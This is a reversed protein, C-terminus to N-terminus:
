PPSSINSFKSPAPQFTAIQAMKDYFGRLTIDSRALIKELREAEAGDAHRYDREDQQIKQKLEAIEGQLWQEMRRDRQLSSNNHQNNQFWVVTGTSMM